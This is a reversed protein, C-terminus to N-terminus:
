GSTVRLPTFFVTFGMVMVGMRTVTTGDVRLTVRLMTFPYSFGAVFDYTANPEVEFSINFTYHSERLYPIDWQFYGSVQEERHNTVEVLFGVIEEAKGIISLSGGIFVEIDDGGDASFVDKNVPTNGPGSGGVYLVDEGVAVTSTTYGVSPLPTVLVLAVTVVAMWRM